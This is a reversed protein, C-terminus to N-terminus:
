LRISYLFWIVDQDPHNGAYDQRVYQLSLSSQKSVRMKIGAYYRTRSMKDWYFPEVAITPTFVGSGIKYDLMAKTRFVESWGKDPKYTAMLRQRLMFAMNGWKCSYSLQPLMRFNFGSKKFAFDNQYAVQFGAGINYSVFPRLYFQSFEEQKTRYEAM